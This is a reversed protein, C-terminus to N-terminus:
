SPATGIRVRPVVVMEGPGPGRIRNMGVCHGFTLSCVRRPPRHHPRSLLFSPEHMTWVCVDRFQLDDMELMHIVHGMKPRKNADPDVCRLAVLLARKLTKPPPREAMKSDVVEEAKREAVMNKLWEVLHVQVCAHM